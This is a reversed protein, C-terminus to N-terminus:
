RRWFLPTLLVLVSLFELRGLLMGLWLLWKAADPLPQFNGSPGIVPGLGPGTNCLAAISASLATVFDLGILSLLIAWIGISALFVFFFAMVSAVVDAEVPRAQYRLTYVAHPSRI